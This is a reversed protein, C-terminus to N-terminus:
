ITSFNVFHGYFVAVGEMALGELISGFRSKQNSFIGDRNELRRSFKVGLRPM